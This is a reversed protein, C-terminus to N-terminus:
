LLIMMNHVKIISATNSHIGFIIRDVIREERILSKPMINSEFSYQEVEM